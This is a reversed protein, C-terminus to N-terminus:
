GTKLSDHSGSRAFADLKLRLNSGLRASHFSCGKFFVLCSCGKFFLLCSRQKECYRRLFGSMVAIVARYVLLVDRWLPRSRANM